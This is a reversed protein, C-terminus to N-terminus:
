ATRGSHTAKDKNARAALLLKVIKVNGRFSAYNLASFGHRDVNATKAGKALLLKALEVQDREAAAILPTRGTEDALNVDAGACILVKAIEKHDNAIANHLPSTGNFDYIKNKDAGAALLAKVIDLHGMMSALGLATNWGGWTSDVDVLKGREAYFNAIDLKKDNNKNNGPLMLWLLVDGSKTSWNIETSFGRLDIRRKRAWKRAWKLAKCSGDEYKVKFLHGNLQMGKYSRVLHPRAERNTMASDLNGVDRVELFPITGKRTTFPLDSWVLEREALMRAEETTEGGQETSGPPM